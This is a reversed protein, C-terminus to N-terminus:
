LRRVTPNWQLLHLLQSTAIQPEVGSQPELALSVGFPIYSANLRHVHYWYGGACFIFASVAIFAQFAFFLAKYISLQWRHSRESWLSTDIEAYTRRKKSVVLFSTIGDDGSLEVLRSVVFCFYRPIHSRRIRFLFLRKKCLCQVDSVTSGLATALCFM